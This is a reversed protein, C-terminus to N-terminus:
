YPHKRMLSGDVRKEFGFKEYLGHADRTGLLGVLNKLEEHEVIASMMAKGLGRGRYGNEIIVDCLYFTTAYDTVCRAFGVQRKGDYVGFCLSNEISKQIVDKPRKDAWYTSALMECVTEVQIFEKNDSVLFGDFMRDM